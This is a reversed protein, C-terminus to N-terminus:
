QSLRAALEAELQQVIVVLAAVRSQLSTVEAASNNSAIATTVPPTTTAIALVVSSSSSSSAVAVSAAPATTAALLAARTPANLYGYGTTAEDGGCAIGEACQFKKLAAYTLAGFKTTENGPSGPGSTALTFDAANLLQQLILVQPDIDGLSLNLTLAPTSTTASTGVTTAASGGSSTAEGSAYSWCSFSSIWPDTGEAGYLYRAYGMNGALTTIDFGLARAPLTHIAADIQFVGVMEDDTGAYLPAGDAQFQRPGSECKAIAIMVPIDAFYSAVAAAVGANPDTTTLTTTPTSTLTPALTTTAAAPITASTTAVQAFALPAALTALTALSLVLFSRWRNM